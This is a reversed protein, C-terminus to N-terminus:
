CMYEHLLLEPLAALSVATFIGAQETLLREGEAGWKYLRKEMKSMFRM